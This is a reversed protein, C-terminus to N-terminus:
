RMIAFKTTGASNGEADTAFVLYIGYGAQQGNWDLGNWVARGGQSDIKAISRGSSSTIHVTSEYALGDITIWGDFDATM